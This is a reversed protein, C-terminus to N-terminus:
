LTSWPLQRLSALGPGPVVDLPLVYFTGNVDVWLLSGMGKDAVSNTDYSPDEPTSCM